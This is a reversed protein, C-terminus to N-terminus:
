VMSDCTYIDRDPGVCINIPVNHTIPFSRFFFFKFFTREHIWCFGLTKNKNLKLELATVLFPQSLFSPFNKKEVEVGWIFSSYFYGLFSLMFFCSFLHDPTAM